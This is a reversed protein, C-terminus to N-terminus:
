QVTVTGNTVTVNQILNTFTVAASMETIAVAPAASGAAAAQFRIRALVVAGAAGAANAQAFRLEGTAANAPNVEPAPFDGAQVDTFTLVAPNWTLVANYSGLLEPATEGQTFRLDATVEVIVEAGVSAMRFARGGSTTSVVVNGAMAVTVRVSDSFALGVAEAVITVTDAVVGTVLGTADVTAVGPNRSTWTVGFVTLPNGIADVVAGTLQTTGAVGVNAYGPTIRVGVPVAGILVRMTDTALTDPTYAAVRVDAQVGPAAAAAGTLRNVVLSTSDARNVLVYRVPIDLPLELSDFVAAQYQFTAGAQVATDSPSVVLRAAKPGAWIVPISIGEGDGGGTGTKEKVEATDAGSFLVLGDTSRVADLRVLVRQPSQLIPLNITARVEGDVIPLTDDIAPNTEFAPASDRYVRVRLLDADDAFAANVGFDPAIDFRAVSLPPAFWEGCAIAGGVGLALFALRRRV